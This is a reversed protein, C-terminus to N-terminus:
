RPPTPPPVAAERPASAGPHPAQPAPPGASDPYSAPLVGSAGATHATHEAPPEAPTPPAEHKDIEVRVAWIAVALVMVSYAVTGALKVGTWWQNRLDKRHRGMFGGEALFLRGDVTIEWTEAEGAVMPRPHHYLYGRSVLAERLSIGYLHQELTYKYTRRKTNLPLAAGDAELHERLVSDLDQLIRTTIM